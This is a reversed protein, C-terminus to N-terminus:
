DGVSEAVEGKEDTVKNRERTEELSTGTKPLFVKCLNNQEAAGEKFETLAICTATKKYNGLDLRPHSFLM